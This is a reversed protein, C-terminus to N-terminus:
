KCRSEEKMWGWGYKSLPKYDDYDVLKTPLFWNKQSSVILYEDMMPDISIPTDLFRTNVCSSKLFSIIVEPFISLAKIRNWIPILSKSPLSCGDWFFVGIKFNFVM